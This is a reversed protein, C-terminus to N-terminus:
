LMCKMLAKFFKSLIDRDDKSIKPINEIFDKVSNWTLDNISDIKKNLMLEYFYNIIISRKSADINKIIDLCAEHFLNSENTLGGLELDDNIVSWTYMNHNEIGKKESVIPIIENDNYMLRGVIDNEPFYNIIKDKMQYFNHNLTLFGPGDFNYIKKIQKKKMINTNMGAYMALNGGKSHGGIYLNVLGKEDNLYKLADIQSPITSYSMNLDEKYGIMTRNTGRFAIFYDYNSIKVTIAGFQEEKKQNLIGCCRIIELNQFRTTLSLMELLKKDRHNPKLTDLYNLINSIKIPLMDAIEEFRIYALRSFIMADIPTIERIKMNGYQEVYNYINRM